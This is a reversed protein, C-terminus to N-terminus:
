DEWPPQAEVQAQGLPTVLRDGERRLQDLMLVVERGGLGLLGGTQVSVAVIRGGRTQLVEDVRGLREGTSGRLEMGALQGVTAGLSPVAAARDEVKQLNLTGSAQALARRPRTLGPLAAAATAVAALLSRRPLAAPLGCPGPAPLRQPGTCLAQRASGKTHGPGPRAGAPSLTAMADRWKPAFAPGRAGPDDSAASGATADAGRRAGEAM